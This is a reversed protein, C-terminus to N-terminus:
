WSGLIIWLNPRAKETNPLSALHDTKIDYFQM